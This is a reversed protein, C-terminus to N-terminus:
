SGCSGVWCLCVFAGADATWISDRHAVGIWCDSLLSNYKAVLVRSALRTEFRNWNWSNHAAVGPLATRKSGDRTGEGVLEAFRGANNGAPM